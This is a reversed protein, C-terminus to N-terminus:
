GHLLMCSSMIPRRFGGGPQESYSSYKEELAYHIEIMM